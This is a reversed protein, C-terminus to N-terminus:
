ARAGSGEPQTPSAPSAAAVSLLPPARDRGDAACSVTFGRSRRQGSPLKDRLGLAPEEPGSAEPPPFSPSPSLLAGCSCGGAPAQPARLRDALGSSTPPADAAELRSNIRRGESLLAQPAREPGWSFAVSFIQGSQPPRPGPSSPLAPQEWGSIPNGWPKHTRPTRPCHPGWAQGPRAADVGGEMGPARGRERAKQRDQVHRELSMRVQNQLRLRRQCAM